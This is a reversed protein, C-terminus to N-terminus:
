ETENISKLVKLSKEIAEVVYDANQKTFDDDITIRICRSTEDDTLGIAKLVHSPEISRSNCASGTGIQIDDVDLSYLLTEGNIDYPLM